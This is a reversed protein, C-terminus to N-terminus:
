GDEEWAEGILRLADGLSLGARKLRLAAEAAEALVLERTLARRTEETFVVFSRAGARSELLGEDEMLRCAKQVTNPNVGLLASLMRRSPLEDGNAVSGSVIARKVYGVIQLYIPESGAPKFGEFSVLGGM